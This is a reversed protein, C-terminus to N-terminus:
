VVGVRAFAPPVPGVPGTGRGNGKQSATPQQVFPRWGGHGNIWGWRFGQTDGPM